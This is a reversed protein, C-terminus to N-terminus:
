LGGTQRRRSIEDMYGIKRFCTQQLIDPLGDNNIDAIDNGMSYRSTNEIFDKLSEKFTGDGQNIYLYDDETFDNSVYIDLWGDGNVDAVGVGLGFGLSSSLIGAETTVEVM